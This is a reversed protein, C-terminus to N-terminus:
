LIILFTIIFFLMFGLDVIYNRKQLIRAGGRITRRPANKKSCKYLVSLIYAPKAETYEARSEAFQESLRIKLTEYKRALAPDARLADRFCLAENWITSRYEVVHLLHTRALGKGFLHHGPVVDTGMDEYGLAALPVALLPSDHLSGVGALIDLIPKAKLGPVSTSGYHELGLLGAGLATNLRAAEESYLEAWRPTPEALRVKTPDLGLVEM